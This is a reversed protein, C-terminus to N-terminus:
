TRWGTNAAADFLILDGERVKGALTDNGDVSLSRTQVLVSEVPEWKLGAAINNPTTTLPINVDQQENGKKVTIIVRQAM